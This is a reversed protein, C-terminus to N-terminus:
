IKMFYFIQTQFFASCPFSSRMAVASSNFTCFVSSSRITASSLCFDSCASLLAASNRSASSFFCVSSICNRLFVFWCNFALWRLKNTKTRWSLSLISELSFTIECVWNSPIIAGLFYATRLFQSWFTQRPTLSHVISNNGSNM